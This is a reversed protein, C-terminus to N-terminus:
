SARVCVWHRQNWCRPLFHVHAHSWHVALEVESGLLQSDELQDAVASDAAAVRRRHLFQGVLDAHAFHCDELVDLSQDLLACQDALRVLSARQRDSVADGDGIFGAGEDEGEYTADGSTVGDLADGVFFFEIEAAYEGAAHAAGIGGEREFDFAFGHTIFADEIAIVDEDFAGFDSM